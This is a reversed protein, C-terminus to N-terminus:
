YKCCNQDANPSYKIANSILNNLVQSLKDRDGFIEKRSGPNNKIEHTYSTKQMDDIVEKVLENFDFFVEDYM